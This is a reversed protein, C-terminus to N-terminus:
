RQSSILTLRQSMEFAPEDISFMMNGGTQRPSTALAIDRITVEQDLEVLVLEDGRILIGGERVWGDIAWQKVSPIKSAFKAEFLVRM